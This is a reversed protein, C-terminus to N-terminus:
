ISIIYTLETASAALSLQLFWVVPTVPMTGTILESMQCIHRSVKTNTNSNM